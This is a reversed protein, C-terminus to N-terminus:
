RPHDGRVNSDGFLFLPVGRAHCWRLIRLRGPDNYGGLVVARVGRDALWRIVRGGKRWEHLARAPKPQDDSKEGPGFGVPRIDDARAAGWPANSQDHTQVSWLEVEGLERAVRRHLHVRYPTLSNSVIAVPPRPAM